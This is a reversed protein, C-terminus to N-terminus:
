FTYTAGLAIRVGVITGAQVDSFYKKRLYIPVDFDFRVGFRDAFPVVVAVGYVLAFRARTDSLGATPVTCHLIGADIGFHPVLDNPHTPVALPLLANQAM